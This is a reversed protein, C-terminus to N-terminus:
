IAAVFIKSLEKEKNGILIIGIHMYLHAQATWIDPQTHMYKLSSKPITLKNMQSPKM